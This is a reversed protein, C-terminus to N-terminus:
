ALTGMDHQPSVLFMSCCIYQWLRLVWVQLTKNCGPFSGYDGDMWGDMWGDLMEASGRGAQLGTGRVKAADKGLAAALQPRAEKYEAAVSYSGALTLDPSTFSFMNPLQSSSPPLPPLQLAQASTM